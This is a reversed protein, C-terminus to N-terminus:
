KGKSLGSFMLRTDLGFCRSLPLFLFGGEIVGGGGGTTGGVSFRFGFQFLLHAKKTPIPTTSVIRFLIDLIVALSKGFLSKSVPSNCESAIIGGLEPIPNAAGSNVGIKVLTACGM